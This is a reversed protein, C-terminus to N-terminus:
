MNSVVEYLLTGAKSSPELGKDFSTLAPAKYLTSRLIALWVDESSMMDLYKKTWVAKSIIGLFQKYYPHVKDSELTARDSNKYILLLM